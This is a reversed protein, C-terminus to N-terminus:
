RATTSTVNGTSDPTKSSVRVRIRSLVQSMILASVAMSLGASFPQFWWIGQVGWLRAFGIALPVRLLLARIAQAALGWLSYGSGQFVGWLILDVAAFLYGTVSARISITALFAVEETPRFPILFFRPCLFLIIGISGMIAISFLISAKMGQRIRGYDGKGLNYGVFPVLAGNLGFAPLFALGEIRNGLMWAAIAAPGFSSLTKNILMGSTAMSIQSFSVPFGIAGIDRWRRLFSADLTLRAPIESHRKLKAQLYICSAVRGILTAAAAGAIGWGFTFIFLPDLLANLGNGIILGYMPTVTDGQSRFLSDAFVSFGMFPFSVILWISYLYCQRAVEATGGLFEYFPLALRPALLPLAISSLLLILSLSSSGYARAEDNQGAGLNRTILSTAGTGIGNTLAFVIFMTPFTLAMAAMPAEGLWSVFVTDAIHFLTHFFMSAMSPLALTFLTKAVPGQGMDIKRRSFLAMDQRAKGDGDLVPPLSKGM